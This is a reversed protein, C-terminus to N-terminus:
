RGCLAAGGLGAISVLPYERDSYAGAFDDLDLAWLMAGALNRSQAFQVKACISREDDYGIGEEGTSVGKACAGSAPANFGTNELSTLRWGRGYMGLGITLQSPRAGENLWWDGM